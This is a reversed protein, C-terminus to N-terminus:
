FDFVLMVKMDTRNNGDIEALGSSISERDFYNTRSIKFYIDLNPIPIYKLVLYYRAGKGYFAPISFSYLVDNEYTYIRSNYDDTNFLAYRGILRLKKNSPTFILDQFLLVGDTTEEIKYRAYEIRTRAELRNSLQYSIHWRASLRSYPTIINTTTENGPLNKEKQYYRIRLYTKTQYNPTYSIETMYDKGNSPQDVLYRLWPYSFHDIYTNVKWYKFPQFSLALYFGRENQVRTNSRFANAYPAVYEKDYYRYILGAQINGGLNILAGNLTALGNLDYGTEGFLLYNNKNYTYNLGLNTFKDGSFDFTKYVKDSLTLSKDYFGHIATLGFRLHELSKEFHGGIIQENINRKKPL